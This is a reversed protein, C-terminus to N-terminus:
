TRRRRGAKPSLFRSCWSLRCYPVERKHVWLVENGRPDIVKIAIRKHGGAPILLSVTGSLKVFAEEDLAGGLARGFKEWAGRNPFFAQCVCFYRSDYDCSDLFWAAMKEAGSSRVTDTVPDYIDV